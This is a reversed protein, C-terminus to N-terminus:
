SKPLAGAVTDITAAVMDEIGQATPHIRDAQRLEPKDYVPELFFPVLTAGYQEALAPYMADFEQQYEPGANPPARMGYLVVPIGRKQLDALIKSLNDRAEAPSLGRLLDNGGLEVLALDPPRRMADLVFDLRQHGGATTDGSLGADAVLANIGRARLASQLREPYGEDEALGYGAFLSDGFALIQREEGVVPVAPDALIRPEAATEEPMPPAESGCATLALAAAVLWSRCNM